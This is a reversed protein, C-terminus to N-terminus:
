SSTVQTPPPQLAAARVLAVSEAIDAATAGRFELILPVEPLRAVWDLVPSGAKIPAHLDRRGDNHSLEVARFRAGFCEIFDAVAFGFTAAALGTHALNFTLGLDPLLGLLRHYEEPRQLLLVDPKTMSGETEVALAVGLAKARASLRGLSDLMRDFAEAHTGSAAAFDFDFAQSESKVHGPRVAEAMFGPHVTYLEAGIEAALELCHGAHDLSAARQGTDASALNIILESRAPPFYNHVLKRGPFSAAVRAIDAQWAHTSGLEVGDLDLGGLGALATGLPNPVPDLYTTSAFVAAMARVGGGRRFAL